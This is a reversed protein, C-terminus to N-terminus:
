LRDAAWRVGEVMTPYPMITSALMEATIGTRMALIIPALLDGAHPALVHGGLLLGQKDVLLKVLGSTAGEAVAREVDKFYMRAVQYAIQEDRLQEETKGVHALAPDTYTVWPIVRDDFPLPEKAFANRAALKGQEYAVHTFQYAGTVDGAAWIHSVNTRLSADVTIGRKSTKVGAKELQLSELSPRRGIALLIEDVVLQEEQRDGCRMTLRKGRPDRQVRQLEVNTEMRIGEDILLECLTDAVEHDEKDLFTSSHELVTVDVGFRRFMQAFEIGIAGGGVIALSRPLTPMSVAEVNSIFGVEDLGEIAPVINQCGTAIVIHAASVSKGAITLEHPSVFVAEGVMVDIGKHTLEKAAEDSTAGRIRDIVQQVRAMVAPWEVKADLNHIGFQDAHQAHYLLNAIHLMTKTPDCGYNLCTGGIKDREVLAVRKSNDAATTAATSGAAGAGIVLLDYEHAAM